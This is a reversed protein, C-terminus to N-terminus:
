QGLQSQSRNDNLRLVARGGIGTPTRSIDWEIREIFRSLMSDLLSTQELLNKARAPYFYGRALVGSQNTSNGANAIADLQTSANAIWEVHAFTDSDEPGVAAILSQGVSSEHSIWSIIPEDGPWGPANTADGDQLNDRIQHTRIANPFRGQYAPQDESSAWRFVQAVLDDVRQALSVDDLVLEDIRAMITLVAKATAPTNTETQKANPLSSSLVIIGPGGDYRQVPDRQADQDQLFSSLKFSLDMHDENITLTPTQALAMAFIADDGVAGLLGIPADHEPLDLLADSLFDLSLDGGDLSVTGAISQRSETSSDSEVQDFAFVWAAFWSSDHEISALTSKLVSSTELLSPVHTACNLQKHRNRQHDVARLMADLMPKSKKPAFILISEPRDGQDFVVLEYRGQEIAWLTYGQEISRPKPQFHKRIRGISDQDVECFMVWQADMAQTITQSSGDREQAGLGDWAILVRNSFIAKITQGTDNEFATSLSGLASQTQSFLGTLSFLQHATQGSSSAFFEEAPNNFVVAADASAPVFCFLEVPSESPDSFHPNASAFSRQCVGILLLCGLAIRIIGINTM